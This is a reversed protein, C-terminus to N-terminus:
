WTVVDALILWEADAAVVGVVVVVSIKTPMGIAEFAQSPVMFYIDVAESSLICM